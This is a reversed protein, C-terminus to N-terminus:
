LLSFSSMCLIFSKRLLPLVESFIPAWFLFNASNILHEEPMFGWCCCRTSGKIHSIVWPGQPTHKIHIYPNFSAKVNTWLYTSTITMNGLHSARERKTERERTMPANSADSLCYWQSDSLSKHQWLPQVTVTMPGYKIRVSKISILCKPTFLFRLRKQPLWAWKLVWSELM